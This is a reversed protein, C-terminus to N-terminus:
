QLELVEDIDKSDLLAPDVTTATFPEPVIVAVNPRGRSPEKVSAVVGTFVTTPVITDRLVVQLFM